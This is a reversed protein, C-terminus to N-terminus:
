NIGQSTQNLDITQFSFNDSTALKKWEKAAMPISPLCSQNLHGASVGYPIALALAEAVFHSGSFSNSGIVLVKQKSM